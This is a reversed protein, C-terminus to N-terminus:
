FGSSTQIEAERKGEHARVSVDIQVTVGLKPVVDTGGIRIADINDDVSNNPGNVNGGLAGLVYSDNRELRSAQRCAKPPDRHPAGIISFAGKNLDTVAAALDM